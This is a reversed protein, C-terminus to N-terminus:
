GPPRLPERLVDDEPDGGDQPSGTDVEVPGDTVWPEVEPERAPERSTPEDDMQRPDRAERNPSALRAPAPMADAQVVGPKTHRPAERSLREIDRRRLLYMGEERTAPLRGSRIAARVWGPNRDVLIAAEAVTLPDGAQYFDSHHGLDSHYIPAQEEVQFSTPGDAGPAAFRGRTGREDYAKRRGPDGLIEWARTVRAFEKSAKASVEATTDPHLTRALRRYAARIQGRTATRAVGLVAYHDTRHSM